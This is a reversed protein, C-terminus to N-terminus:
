SGATEHKRDATGQTQPRRHKDKTQDRNYKMNQRSGAAQQRNGEGQERSGAQVM